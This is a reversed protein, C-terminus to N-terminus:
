YASWGRDVFLIAGTVSDADASALFVASGTLEEPKMWGGSGGFRADVARLYEMDTKRAEENMPTEIWGPAIANVQINRDRLELALSKTLLAIAGKTGCYVASDPYGDNGFISGINIIKGSGQREFVPLVRQCLFFAGKLNAAVMTDFTEETTQGLRSMLYVGANNLLIHVTGYAAVVQAVAADIAGVRSVDAEVALAVGGSSRISDVVAAAKKQDRNLIAVKAGEAAFRRAFAEGIGQSGGTIIAVRDKLRMGSVGKARTQQLTRSVAKRSLACVIEVIANGVFGKVPPACQCSKFTVPVLLVM